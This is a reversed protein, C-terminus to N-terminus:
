RVIEVSLTVTEVVNNKSDNPRNLDTTIFREKLVKASKSLKSRNLRENAKKTRFKSEFSIVAEKENVSELKYFGRSSVQGLLTRKFSRRYSRKTTKDFWTQHQAEAIWRIPELHALPHAKLLKRLKAFNKNPKPDNKLAEFEKAAAPGALMAQTNFRNVTLVPNAIFRTSPFISEVKEMTSVGNVRYKNLRMDALFHKGQVKPGPRLLEDKELYRLVRLEYEYMKSRRRNLAMHHSAYEYTIKATMGPKIEPAPLRIFKDKSKQNASWAVGATLLLVCLSLISARVHM